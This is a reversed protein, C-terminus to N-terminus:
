LLHIWIYGSIRTWENWNSSMEISVTASVTM